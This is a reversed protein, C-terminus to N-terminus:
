MYLYRQKSIHTEQSNFPPLTIKSCKGIEEFIKKQKDNEPKSNPILQKQQIIKNNQAWQLNSIMRKQTEQLQPDFSKNYQFIQSILFLADNLYEEARGFDSKKLNDNAACDTEYLLERALSDVWQWIQMSELEESQSYKKTEKLKKEYISIIENAQSLIEMLETKLTPSLNSFTICSPIDEILKYLKKLADVLQNSTLDFKHETSIVKYLHKMQEFNNNEFPETEKQQLEEEGILIKNSVENFIQHSSPFERLVELQLINNSIM